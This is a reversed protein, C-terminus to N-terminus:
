GSYTLFLAISVQDPEFEASIKRITDVRVNENPHVLREYIDNRSTNVGLLTEVAAAEKSQKQSLALSVTDDFVKPFSKELDRFLGSYWVVTDEQCAEKDFEEM